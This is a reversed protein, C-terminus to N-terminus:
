KDLLFRLYIGNTWGFGPRSPTICVVKEGIKKVNYKEYFCKDKEFWYDCTKLWKKRIRNAENVLGYNLLSHYAIFHLPAWGHPYDWQNIKSATIKVKETATIGGEKELVSLLKSLSKKAKSKEAIKAYFPFFSASTIFGTRKRSVFNYDFYLSEKKDWCYKEILKKRKIMRKKWKRAENKNNNQLFYWEFFAEYLYLQCNLDIPNLQITKDHMRTSTDWGSEYEAFLDSDCNIDWYRSLGTDTLHNAYRKDAAMWYEHYEVIALKVCEKLWVAKLDKPYIKLYEWIAIAFYPSQSRSLSFYTNSNPIRGFRKIEYAFNKLIGQCLEKTDNFLLLGLFIYFTDWYFFEKFHREDPVLYPYPLSFILKEDKAQFVLSKRLFDAIYEIQAKKGSPIILLLESPLIFKPTIM